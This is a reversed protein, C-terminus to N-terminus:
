EITAVARGLRKHEKYFRAANDRASKAPDLAIRITGGEFDDPLTVESAGRPVEALHALLLDGLKRKAGAALARARDRGLADLKRRLKELQVRAAREAEVRAQEAASSRAREGYEADIRESPNEGFRNQS